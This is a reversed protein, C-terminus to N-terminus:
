SSVSQAQRTEEWVFWGEEWSGGSREKWGDEFDHGKEDRIKNTKREIYLYEDKNFNKHSVKKGEVMAAHAEAKNTYIVQPVVIFRSKKFDRVTRVYPINIGLDITYCNERKESQVANYVKGLELLKIRKTQKKKILDNICKVRLM